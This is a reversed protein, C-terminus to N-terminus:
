SSAEETPLISAISAISSFPATSAPPSGSRLAALRGLAEDLVAQQKCFAFRVYPRGAAPDAYFVQNPVAAVGCRAPLSRCFALGDAEGLPRIDATVFYTGQPVHVAFGIDRLGAVFRDRRERLSDRLATIRVPPLRLAEAVAHQFPTGSSFSLYQKVATVAEVLDAPGTAWGVKWGTFSFTKGASGITLTREAMGPLTAIPLHPGEYVLHEYVEDAIVLLDHARATEAIQRLSEPPLVTGTPNHPTNLLLVKTRPTVAARLAAPDFTFAPPTLRVPVLTAGALEVCAAYSDYYPELVIVEDGPGVLALLAAALAESAGTTVVVERAPDWEIGYWGRQHAAIAERLAPLGPVPPYQHHGARLAAVASDVVVSPGPTDPFGQGLNIAGHLGALQSMQTFVTPGADRLRVRARRPGASVPVAPM